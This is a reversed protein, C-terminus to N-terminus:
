QLGTEASHCRSSTPTSNGSGLGITCRNRADQTKSHIVKSQKVSPHQPQMSKQDPQLSLVLMYSHLMLVSYRYWTCLIAKIRLLWQGVRTDSLGDSMIVAQSSSDIWGAPFGGDLTDVGCIWFTPRFYSTLYVLCDESGVQRSSAGIV